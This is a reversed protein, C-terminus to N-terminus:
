AAMFSRPKRAQQRHNQRSRRVEDSLPVRECALDAYADAHRLHDNKQGGTVVWKSVRTGTEPSEIVTRALNTMQPVFQDHWFEDKRPYRIRKELITDRAQDLLVTRGVKM